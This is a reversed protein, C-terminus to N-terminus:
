AKTGNQREKWTEGLYDTMAIMLTTILPNGKHAYWVIACEEAMKQWYEDDDRPPYFADLLNFAARFAEQHLKKTRAAEEMARDFDLLEQAVTDPM